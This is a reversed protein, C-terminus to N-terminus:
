LEKSGNKRFTEIALEYTARFKSGIVPWTYHKMVKEYGACGMEFQLSRNQVLLKIKKALDTTSDPEFLLGDKGDNIISAIAGINAGVVPKKFSWGELFVVGFSEAISPLILIDSIKLLEAKEMDSIDNFLYIKNKEKSAKELYKTYSGKAGAIILCVSLSEKVLIQYAHILCDLGKSSEQRGIYLLVASNAPARYKLKLTETTNLRGEYQFMDTGAGIVKIKNDQILQKILFKKEFETNAIYYNAYKIRTLYRKSLLEGDKLHLAGYLVFPKNKEKKWLPYDAFLYHVSSACIVDCNNHIIASRMSPSVPGINLEYLFSPLEKKFIKSYHRLLPKHLRVFPFRRVYVDNIIEEGKDIKLFMNRNPGYYSNTTYVTLADGYVQTLYESVKKITHQTGGRSPEYNQTIHLVKM